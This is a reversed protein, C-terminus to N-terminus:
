ERVIIYAPLYLLQQLLMSTCQNMCSNQQPMFNTYHYIDNSISTSNNYVYYALLDSWGLSIWVLCSVMKDDKKTNNEFFMFDQLFLLFNWNIKNITCKIMSLIDNVNYISIITNCSNPFMSDLFKFDNEHHKQLCWYKKNPICM